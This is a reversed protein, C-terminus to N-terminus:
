FFLYIIFWGIRTFYKTPSDRLKYSHNNRKFLEGAFNSMNPFLLPVIAGAHRSYTTECRLCHINPSEVSHSHPQLHFPISTAPPLLPNEAFDLWKKSKMFSTRVGAYTGIAMLNDNLLAACCVTDHAQSGHLTAVLSATMKDGQFPTPLLIAHLMSRHLVQTLDFISYPTFQM